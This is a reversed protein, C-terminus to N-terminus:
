GESVVIAGDDQPEATRTTSRYRPFFRDAKRGGFRSKLTGHTRDLLTDFDKKAVDLDTAALALRRREKALVKVAAEYEVLLAEIRAAFPERLPDEVPLHQRVREALEQYRTVQQDLPAAIYYDVGQHYILNYPAEQSANASRGGLSARHEKTIDDLDDDIGDRDAQAAFAKRRAKDYLRSKEEILDTAAVVAALLDLVKKRKLKSAVYDGQDLRRWAAAEPDLFQM